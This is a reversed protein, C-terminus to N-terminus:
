KPQKSSQIEDEVLQRIQKKMNQYISHPTPTVCFSRVHDEKKLQAPLIRYQTYVRYSEQARAQLDDLHKAVKLGTRDKLPHGHNKSAYVPSEQANKVTEKPICILYLDGIYAQKIGYSSTGHEHQFQLMENQMQDTIQNIRDIIIDFREKSIGAESLILALTDKPIRSFQNASSIHISMNNKLFHLASEGQVRSWFYGDASLLDVNYDHDMKQGSVLDPHMNLFQEAFQRDNKPWRLYKFLSHSEDPKEARIFEKILCFAGTWVQSSAHTFVYHTDKYFEKLELARGLIIRMQENKANAFPFLRKFTKDSLFGRLRQIEAQADPLRKAKILQVIKKETKKLDSCIQCEEKKQQFPDTQLIKALLSVKHLTLTELCTNLTRLIVNKKVRDNWKIRQNNQEQAKQFIAELDIPSLPIKEKHIYRLFHETDLTIFLNSLQNINLNM